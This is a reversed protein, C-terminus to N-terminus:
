ARGRAKRTKHLVATEVTEMTTTREGEVIREAIGCREYRDAASEDVVIEDGIEWALGSEIKSGVIVHPDHPGVTEKVVKMRVSM